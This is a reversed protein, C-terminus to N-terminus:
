KEEPPLLLLHSWASGESTLPLAQMRGDMEGPDRCPPICGDVYRPEKGQTGQFLALRAVRVNNPYRCPGDPDRIYFVERIEMANRDDGIMEAIYFIMNAAISKVAM